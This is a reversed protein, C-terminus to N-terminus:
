IIKQLAAHCFPYHTCLEFVTTNHIHSLSTWTTTITHLAPGWGAPSPLTCRGCIYTNQWFQPTINLTKLYSNVFRTSSLLLSGTTLCAVKSHCFPAQFPLLREPLQPASHLLPRPEETPQIKKYTTHWERKYFAAATCTALCSKPSQVSMVLNQKPLSLIGTSRKFIDRFSICTNLTLCSRLPMEPPQYQYLWSTQFKSFAESKSVFAWSENRYPTVSITYCHPMSTCSPYSLHVTRNQAANSRLSLVRKYHWYRSCDSHQHHIHFVLINNNFFHNSTGKLQAGGPLIGTSTIFSTLFYAYRTYSRGKCPSSSVTSWTQSSKQLPPLSHDTDWLFITTLNHIQRTKLM